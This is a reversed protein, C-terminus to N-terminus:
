KVEYALALNNFLTRSMGTIALFKELEEVLSSAQYSEQMITVSFGIVGNVARIIDGMRQPDNAYVKRSVEILESQIMTGAGQMFEVPLKVKVHVMGVKYMGRTYDGGFPGVFLSELWQRHAQKLSELRGELFPLAKPLQHLAEYFSETVAGLHPQIEPAVEILLQEHAPTFGTLIKTERALEEFDIKDEM